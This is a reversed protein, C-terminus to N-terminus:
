DSAPKMVFGDVHLATPHQKGCTACKRKQECNRSMHDNGYCAFCLRNNMIFSRREDITKDLFQPCSDIDHHQQCLACTSSDDTSNSVNTAFVSGRQRNGHLHDQSSSQKAAREKTPKSNHASLADKGYIPDNAIEASSVVFNVLDQFMLIQSHNIRSNAALERWKNQLYPPLKSVVSLMNPPHNLVSLYSMCKMAANCKLLFLSLRKLGVNDDQQIIPWEQLSKVYMISIKYPDGYESDLLRRAETYGEDPYMHLCGEVMDKADGLLHQHLFYLKDASSTVKSAIRTDFAM